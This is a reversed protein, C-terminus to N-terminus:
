NELAARASRDYNLPLSALCEAPRERTRHSMTVNGLTVSKMLSEWGCGVYSVLDDLQLLLRVIDGVAGVGATITRHKLANLSSSVPYVIGSPVNLLRELDDHGARSALSREPGRPRFYFHRTHTSLLPAISFRSLGVPLLIDVGGEIKTMSNSRIKPAAAQSELGREM